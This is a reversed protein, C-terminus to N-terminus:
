RGRSCTSAPSCRRTRPPVRGAAGAAASWGTSVGDAYCAEHIAAYMPNRGQFPLAAALDHRFMPSDSDLELLYHLQEAGDSMGLGNGIQRFRRSSM